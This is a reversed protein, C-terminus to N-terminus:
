GHGQIWVDIADIFGPEIAPSGKPMHQADSAPLKMRRDAENAMASRDAGAMGNLKNFDLKGGAKSPDAGHCKACSTMFQDHGVKLYLQETAKDVPTPSAPPPVTGTANPPVSPGNAPSNPVANPTPQTGSPYAPTSQIQTTTTSSPQSALSLAIGAALLRQSQIRATDNAASLTGLQGVLAGTSNLIQNAGQSNDAVGRQFEHIATNVDFSPQSPVAALGWLSSGQVNFGQTITQFGNYSQGYPGYSAGAGYGSTTGETGFQEALIQRKAAIARENGKIRVIDSFFTDSEPNPTAYTTPAVSVQVTTGGVASLPAYASQVPILGCNQYTYCGNYCVYRYAYGDRVGYQNVFYYWNPAAYYVYGALAPSCFLSLLLALLFRKM